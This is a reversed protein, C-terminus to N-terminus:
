LAVAIVSIIDISFGEQKLIGEAKQMPLMVKM